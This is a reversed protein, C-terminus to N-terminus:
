GASQADTMHLGVGLIYLTTLTVWLITLISYTFFIDVSILSLGAWLGLLLIVNFLMGQSLENLGSGLIRIGSLIGVAIAAILIIMATSASWIDFEQPESGPVDVSGAESGTTFDVTLEDDSTLDETEGVFSGGVDAVAYATIIFMLAM